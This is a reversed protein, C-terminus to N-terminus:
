GQRDFLKHEGLWLSWRLGYAVAAGAALGVAAAVLSGLVPSGAITGIGHAALGGVVLSALPAVVLEWVWISTGKNRITGGGNVVPPQGGIPCMTFTIGANVSSSSGSNTITSVFSSVFSTSSSPITIQVKAKDPGTPTISDKYFQPAPKGSPSPVAQWTVIAVSDPPVLIQSNPYCQVDVAGTDDASQYVDITTSINGTM